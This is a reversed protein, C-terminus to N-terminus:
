DNITRQLNLAKKAVRRVEDAVNYWKYSKPTMTGDAINVLEVIRILAAVASELKIDLKKNVSDVANGIVPSEDFYRELGTQFELEDILKDHLSSKQKLEIIEDIINNITEFAFQISGAYPEDWVQEITEKKIKEM